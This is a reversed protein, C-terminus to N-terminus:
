IMMTCNHYNVIFEMYLLVEKKLTDDKKGTWRNPM